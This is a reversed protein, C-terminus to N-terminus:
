AKVCQKGKLRYGPECIFRGNACFQMNSPCKVCKGTRVDASFFIFGNKINKEGCVTCVSPDDPCFRCNNDKCKQCINKKTNAHYGEKCRLFGSGCYLSNEPCKRCSGDGADGYGTECVNCKSVDDGCFKCDSRCPKCKKTKADLGFGTACSECVGPKSYFACNAPLNTDKVCRKSKSDLTFGINCSITVGSSDCRSVNEDCKVCASNRVYYGEICSVCKGDGDCSRCGAPCAVCSGDRLGYYGKIDVNKPVDDPLPDDPDYFYCSTCVDRDNDCRMCNPDRCRECAQDATNYRYFISCSECEDLNNWCSACGETRCRQCQVQDISMRYGGGCNTCRDDDSSVACAPDPFGYQQCKSVDGDCAACGKAKCNQCKGNVLGKGYDCFRCKGNTQICCGAKFKDKAQEGYHFCSTDDDYDGIQSLASQICLGSLLLVQVCLSVRNLSAWM